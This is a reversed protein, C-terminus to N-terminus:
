SWAPATGNCLKLSASWTIGGDGGRTLQYNFIMVEVTLTASDPFDIVLTRAGGITQFVARTASSALGNGNVTAEFDQLLQLREIASKDLGTVDQEGITINCTHNNVDNSIDVPTGGNDDLNVTVPLGSFKTM